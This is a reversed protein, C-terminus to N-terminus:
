DRSLGVPQALGSQDDKTGIAGKTEVSAHGLEVVVASSEEIAPKM